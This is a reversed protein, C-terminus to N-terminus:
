RVSGEAPTGLYLRAALNEEDQPALETLPVIDSVVTRDLSAAHPWNVEVLNGAPDRLYMQAEGGPLEFIGGMFTRDDRIELQRVRKYAAEFDDVNLAFHHYTPAGERQFLHLQQSGARMWAVPQSPFRPAPVREMGFVETYFRISADLDPASIAVHNIGTARV